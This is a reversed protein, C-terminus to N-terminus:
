VFFIYLQKTHLRHKIFKCHVSSFQVAGVKRLIVDLTGVSEIIVRSHLMLAIDM